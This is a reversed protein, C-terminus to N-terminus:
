PSAEEFIAGTEQCRACTVDLPRPTRPVDFVLECKPCQISTSASRSGSERRGDDRGSERLLQTILDHRAQQIMGRIVYPDRLGPMWLGGGATRVSLGSYGFIRGVLSTHVHLDTVRDLLASAVTLILKGRRAYVAEATVVYETTVIRRWVYLVSAFIHGFFLIGALAGVSGIYEPAVLLTAAFLGGWLVIAILFSVILHELAWAGVIREEKLVREHPLVFFKAL